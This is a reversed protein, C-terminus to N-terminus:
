IKIEYTADNLVLLLEFKVKNVISHHDAQIQVHEFQFTLNQWEDYKSKTFFGDIAEFLTLKTLTKAGDSVYSNMLDTSKQKFKMFDAVHKQMNADVTGQIEGALKGTEFKQFEPIMDLIVVQHILMRKSLEYAVVGGFSHGIVRISAFSKGVFQVQIIEALEQISNITSNQATLQTFDIGVVYFHPNLFQILDFYADLVGDVGPLVIVLDNNMKENFYVIGNSQYDIYISDDGLEQVINVITKHLFLHGIRIKSKSFRQNIKTILHIANLSNGGLEFFNDTIGIKDLGLVEKWIKVLIREEDTRPAVHEKRILAEEKVSPLAKRDIKGNVNLPLKDLLMYYDPVMYDPLSMELYARLVGKNLEKDCVVYAVLSNQNNVQKVDVVLQKIAHSFQLITNEIEGLEVRYGRVKLQFDKRGLYHITGDVKWFGIDGSDYMKEGEAFPNVVFMEATLEPLNHYGRAVCPGAIYIKGAIGVPVPQKNADLIYIRVNSIPKGITPNEVFQNGKLSLTTAVHTETPGYHNHLVASTERLKSVAEKGLILKEGAVIVHKLKATLHLEFYADVETLIRYYATPLFTTDIDNEALFALFLHMDKKVEDTIPYLTGGSTLTTMIEQFSVDFGISTFQTVRKCKYQEFTSNHFRVLNTVAQHELMIGKPVGTSGSSYMIYVLDNPKIKVGLNQTGYTSLTQSISAFAHDDLILKCASNNKIFDRRQKPYAPDIPVYGAGTKLIGLLTIIFNTNRVMEIGILDDAKLQHGEMLYRAFQNVKENLEFYSLKQNNYVLAIEFPTKQVQKEFLDICSVTQDWGKNQTMNFDHLVQQKEGATLYNLHKVSLQSHKVISELLQELHDVLRVMTEGNFIDSSYELRLHLQNEFESFFFLLDFKSTKKTIGDYEKIKLEDIAELNEINFNEINNFAVMVDFLPNRSLDRELELHEILKDFPYNQHTYAGLVVERIKSYVAAFSDDETAQVRLALTNVYFGIQNELNVNDRGAIPTGFVIDNQSTYKTLLIYVLSLSSMFWTGKHANNHRKLWSTAEKSFSKSVEKGRYTKYTPYPRDLPLNLVPIEGKFQEIWYKEDLNDNTKSLYDNQWVAYDKYQIALPPLQMTEHKVSVNYFMLLENLFVGMSWGDSIIHHMTYLFHYSDTGLQYLKIRVLPAHSLDFEGEFDAQILAKVSAELDRESRLDIFQIYRKEEIEELRKVRQQIEGNDSKVFCTRLIEHRNIVSKVAFLFANIDLKGTFKFVSTINYAVNGGEFQSLVWLRKQAYSLPYHASEAAKPITALVTRATYLLEEVIVAQDAITVHNFIHDLEISVKFKAIIFSRLKTAKLSDGGNKFFDDTVSLKSLNLIQLWMELLDREIGNRPAFYEASNEILKGHQKVLAKRDLKGNIMTPISDMQVYQFPVMHKPLKHSLYAILASKDCEGDSLLYAVLEYDAGKTLRPLVACYKVGTFGLLTNEIETLEVRHGNIKIQDDKRGKFELNGDSLWCGFDGTKYIKSGPVFPNQIFKEHTLEANNLYGRAVGAGGICIEGLVGIPQLEDKESLVYILENLLPKGILPKVTASNIVASTSWITTETPGYVQIVQVNFLKKLFNLVTEDIKEGGILIIDLQNLIDLVETPEFEMLQVLRTPTIQLVNVNGAKVAELITDPQPNKLLHIEFGETLGGLLELISIDFTYNTTAGIVQHDKLGLTTRLNQFFAVLQQHEVVVGKPTGSSGSTYIVYAANTLSAIQPLNDQIHWGKYNVMQRKHFTRRTTKPENKALQTLCDFRFKFLENEITGQKLSFVPDTKFDFMQFCDELFERHLFLETENMEKQFLEYDSIEANLSKYYSYQLQKDRIDGLFLLGQDTFLSLCDKVFNRVFNLSPFYQVVSNVIIIDFKESIKKIESAKLQELSVNTIGRNSLEQECMVLAESSIDVGKYSKVLPAIKFLILGTGSGIELVSLSNNLFPKLKVFVNESFEDMEEMSFTEKTESSVWGSAAIIDTSKKATYNWLNMMDTEYEGNYTNVYADLCVFANFKETEWQLQECIDFFQSVTLLLNLQTDNIIYKMREKPYSPDIPVYAAGVKLVALIAILLNEDREVILGILQDPFITFNSRLYHALQNASSNLEGYSFQVDGVTLAIKEPNQSVQSEFLAHITHDIGENTTTYNFDFLLKNKEAEDIFVIQDLPLNPHQTIAELVQELHAVMRVITANDFLDTNYELRLNLQDKSEDFNFFLSFKSTISELDTYEKISLDGNQTVLDMNFNDINHFAVMVEFMPNRSLDREIDLNEILKNFPYNQHAYAGLVLERVKTYMSNYSEEQEGRIRLALTNVYFGIQNELERLDRGASPSGFVMDTQTTYKNLVIYILSLVSMFLTGNQETSHQKLRRTLEKSFSKSFYSGSYSQVAPYPRDIPLNLVPVETKFQEMWYAKDKEVAASEMYQNQWVAYDKYQIELPALTNSVKAVIQQYFLLLENFFVGMSWGDSIIHHMSFLFCFKGDSLHYLKTRLLPAKSLNFEFDFEQRIFENAKKESNEEARLDIYEYIEKESIVEFPIIYQQVENNSDEAFFTRLIEHREIILTVSKKLSIINLDGELRYVGTMNYAKNGGMFQSLIWLRKQSNSLPYYSLETTKPIKVVAKRTYKKLYEIIEEKNKKITSIITNDFDERTISLELDDNLLEILIGSEKAKSLLNFISNM